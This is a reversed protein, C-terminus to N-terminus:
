PSLRSARSSAAVAPFVGGLVLRQRLLAVLLEFPRLLLFLDQALLSRKLCPLRRYGIGQATEGPFEILDFEGRRLRVAREVLGVPLLRFGAVSEPLGLAVARRDLAFLVTGLLGPVPRDGDAPRQFRVGREQAQQLGVPDVYFRRGGARRSLGGVFQSPDGVGDQPNANLGGLVFPRDM